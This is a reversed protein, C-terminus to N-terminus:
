TTIPTNQAAALWWEGDREILVYMAMESFGGPELAQRRIQAIVVNPAPSRAAVVEFRSPPAVGAAMLRHHIANLETFGTVTAGKPSGWLIDDAFWSDYADADGAVVGRQLQGALATAELDARSRRAPDHLTPRTTM